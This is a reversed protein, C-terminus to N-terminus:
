TEIDDYSKLTSVDVAAPSWTLASRRGSRGDGGPDAVATRDRPDAERGAPGAPGTLALLPAFGLPALYALLPTM